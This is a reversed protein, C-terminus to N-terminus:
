DRWAGPVRVVHDALATSAGLVGLLRDATAPDDVLTTLLADRDEADALELLSALAADPDASRGLADRLGDAYPGLATLGAVAEDVRQFGLRLLTSRDTRRDTPSM